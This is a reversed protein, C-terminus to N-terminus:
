TYNAFAPSLLTRTTISLLAKTHWQSTHTHISLLCQHSACSIKCVEVRLVKCIAALLYLINSTEAITQTYSCPLMTFPSVRVSYWINYQVMNNYLWIIDHWHLNYWALNYYPHTCRACRRPAPPPPAPGRPSPRAWSREESAPAPFITTIM